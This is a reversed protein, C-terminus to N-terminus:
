QIQRKLTELEQKADSIATFRNGCGCDFGNYDDCMCDVNLAEIFHEMSKISSEDWDEYINNIYFDLLKKSKELAHKISEM